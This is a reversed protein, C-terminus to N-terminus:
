LKAGCTSTPDEDAVDLYHQVSNWAKLIDIKEHLTLPEEGDAMREAYNTFSYHKDEVTVITDMVRRWDYHNVGLSDGHYNVYSEGYGEVEQNLYMKRLEPQAMIYRQMVPGATQLEALTTTAYISNTSWVNALKSTLNRLAQAADSVSIMSYMNRATDFFGQATESLTSRLTQSKEQLWGTTSQDLQGGAFIDILDVGHAAHM